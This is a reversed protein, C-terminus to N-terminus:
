CRLPGVEHGVACADDVHAAPGPQRADREGQAAGVQLHRQELRQQSPRREQRLGHLLQLERAAHGDDTGPGLVVRRRVVHHDRPREGREGPQEAPADGEGRATARDERELAPRRLVLDRLLGACQSAVVQGSLHDAHTGVRVDLRGGHDPDALDSARGSRPSPDTTLAQRRVGGPGPRGAGARQPGPRPRGRGRARSPDSPVGALEAAAEAHGARLSGVFETSTAFPIITSVSIRAGALEERAIATLRELTIKSAVYGGTSPADALTTGSSVNVISGRNQARVLPIVTQMVSLPAILDLELLARLDDLDIQEVHAGQAAAARAPAAGNGVLCRDRTGGRHPPGHNWRTSTRTRM